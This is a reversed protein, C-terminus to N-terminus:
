AVSGNQPRAMQGDLPMASSEGRRGHRKFILFLGVIILAAPWFASWAIWYLSSRVLLILGIGILILGPLYRKWSSDVKPRIDSTPPVSSDSLVRKPMIVWALIYVFLAVGTVLILLVTILRVLTPDVDFYEGLGGCVGGIVKNTASLCLKKEM